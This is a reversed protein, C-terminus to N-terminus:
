TRDLVLFNATDAEKPRLWLPSQRDFLNSSLFQNPKTHRVGKISYTRQVSGYKGLVDVLFRHNTYSGGLDSLILKSGPTLLQAIREITRNAGVRNSGLENDYNQFMAIDLHGIIEASSEGLAQHISFDHIEVKRLLSDDQSQSCGAELLARRVSKWGSHAIDFLDLRLGGTPLRHQEKLIEVLAVAEPCAGCCFLGVRGPPPEMTDVHAFEFAMRSQVIFGPISALLYACAVQGSYGPNVVSDKFNRRLRDLAPQLQKLAEGVEAEGADSLGAAARFAKLVLPYYDLDSM